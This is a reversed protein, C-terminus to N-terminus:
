SSTLPAPPAPAAPPSVPDPPPAPALPAPALPAPPAPAVPAPDLEVPTPPPVPTPDVERPPPAPSPSFGPSDDLAPALLGDDVSPSVPSSPASYPRPNSGPAPDELPEDRTERNPLEPRNPRVIPDPAIRPHDGFRPRRNGGTPNALGPGNDDWDPLPPFAQNPNFRNQAAPNSPHLRVQLGFAVGGIGFVLGTALIAWPLRSGRRQPQPDAWVSSRLPPATAPTVLVTTATTRQSAPTGGRGNIPPPAPPSTIAAPPYAAPSPLLALWQDLNPPQGMALSPTAWQFVANLDTPLAPRRHCLDVDLPAQAARQGTLLFYLLETLGRVWDAESSGSAQGPAPFDFGTLTLTGGPGQWVQDPTLRLAMGSPNPLARIAQAVQQVLALSTVLSPPQHPTVSQTLPVGQPVAFVQYCVRDEEFGQLRKPLFSAGLQNLDEFYAYLSTRQAPDPLAEPHHCGLVRLLVWQGSPSHTALYLPGISDEGNLGDIVYTGNQLATGLALTMPNIHPCKGLFPILHLLGMSACCAWGM